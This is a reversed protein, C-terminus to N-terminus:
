PIVRIVGGDYEFLWVDMFNITDSVKYLEMIYKLQM